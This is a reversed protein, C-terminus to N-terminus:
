QLSIPPAAADLLPEEVVTGPTVIRTVERRVLGKAKAPDEVQECIAVKHGAQVLKTLYGEAAHYPIGCMPVANDKGKDRTTLAIKLVQAAVVADDMFMEYFDGMRFFLIAGPHDGKISLYQKMMPTSTGGATKPRSQKM